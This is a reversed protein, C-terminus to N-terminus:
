SRWRWLTDLLRSAPALAIGQITLIAIVMGAIFSAASFGAMTFGYIVFTAIIAGSTGAYGRDYCIRNGVYVLLAALLGGPIGAIFVGCAALLTGASADPSCVINGMMNGGTRSGGTLEIRAAIGRAGSVGGKKPLSFLIDISVFLVWSVIAAILIQELDGLM